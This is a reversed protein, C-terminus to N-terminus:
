NVGLGAPQQSRLLKVEMELQETYTEADLRALLQRQTTSHHRAFAPTHRGHFNITDHFWEHAYSMYLIPRNKPSRNARGRHMIRMDFIAADGVAVKLEYNPCDELHEDLEATTQLLQSGMAFQTAGAEGRTTTAADTAHVAAAAAATAAKGGDKAVNKIKKPRRTDVLPAVVVVGQPPLAAAAQWKFLHSVDRHWPQDPAGPIATVVSLTDLEIRRALLARALPLLAASAVLPAETFPPQPTVHLAM